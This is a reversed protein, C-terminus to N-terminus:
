NKLPWNKQTNKFGIGGFGGGGGGGLGMRLRVEGIGYDRVTRGLDDMFSM